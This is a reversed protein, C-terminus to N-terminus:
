DCKNINNNSSAQKLASFRSASDKKANEKAKNLLEPNTGLETISSKSIVAKEKQTETIPEVVSTKEMAEKTYRIFGDQLQEETLTKKTNSGEVTVVIQNSSPIIMSVRVVVNKSMDFIPKKTILLTGEKGGKITNISLTQLEGLRKNYAADIESIKVDGRKNYAEDRAQKLEEETKASEIKTFFTSAPKQVPEVSTKISITPKVSRANSVLDKLEETSITERQGSLGSVTETQRGVPKENKPVSTRKQVKNTGFVKNAAAQQKSFRPKKTKGDKIIKILNLDNKLQLLANIQNSIDDVLDERNIVTSSLAYLEDVTQDIWYYFNTLDLESIASVGKDFLTDLKDPYNEAVIETIAKSVASSLSLRDIEKLHKKEDQPKFSKTAKQFSNPLANLAFIYDNSNGGKVLVIDNTDLLSQKDKELKQVRERLEAIKNLLFYQAVSSKKIDKPKALQSLRSIESNAYDIEEDIENLYSENKRYSLAAIAGSKDRIVDYKVGNIIASTEDENAFEAKIVKGNVKNVQFPFTIGTIISIGLDLGNLAGNTAPKGKHYVVEIVKEKKNLEAKTSEIASGIQKKIEPNTEEDFDREFQSLMEKLMDADKAITKEVAFSGDELMILKGTTGNFIITKNLLDTLSINDFDNTEELITEGSPTEETGEEEVIEEALETEFEPQIMVVGEETIDDLFELDYYGKSLYKRKITDRGTKPNKIKITEGNKDLEPVKAKDIDNVYGEVDVDIGLPLVALRNPKIGTMNYFLTSYISLQARHSLRKYSNDKEYTDWNKSTKIDIIMVEGKPNVALLDIEGTIGLTKDFVLLNEPFLVFEGDIMKSRISSVIGGPGFLRDFAKRSMFDSVKYDVGAITISDEYGVNTFGEGAVSDLTLFKRILEDVKTGAETSEIFAYEDILASLSEITPNKRL